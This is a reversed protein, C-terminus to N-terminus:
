SAFEFSSEVFVASIRNDEILFTFITIKNSFNGLSYVAKKLQDVVVFM